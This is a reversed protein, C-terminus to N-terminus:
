FADRLQARSPAGCHFLSNMGQSQLDARNLAAGIEAWLRKFAARSETTYPLGWAAIAHENISDLTDRSAKKGEVVEGVLKVFADQIGSLLVAHEASIAASMARHDRSIAVLLPHSMCASPRACYLVGDHGDSTTPVEM